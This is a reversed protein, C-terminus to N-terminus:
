ARQKKRLAKTRKKKRLGKKIRESMETIFHKAMLTQMNHILQDTSKSDKSLIQKEKVLHVAVDLNDLLVYNKFNRYLRDAKEALIIKVEPNHALFNLMLNFNTGSAKGVDIFEQIVTLKKKTAYERLLKLQELTSFDPQNQEISSVRTYIVAKKM